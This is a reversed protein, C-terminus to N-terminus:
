GRGFYELKMGIVGGGLSPMAVLTTGTATEIVTGVGMVKATTEWASSESKTRTRGESDGDADEEEDSLDAPILLDFLPEIKESWRRHILQHKPVDSLPSSSVASGEPEREVENAM